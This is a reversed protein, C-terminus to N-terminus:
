CGFPSSGIVIRERGCASCTGFVREFSASDALANIVRSVEQGRDLSLSAALCANCYTNGRSGFLLNAVREVADMIEGKGSEGGSFRYHENRGQHSMEMVKM